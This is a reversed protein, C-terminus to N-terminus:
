KKIQMGLSSTPFSPFLIKVLGEDKDAISKEISTNSVKYFTEKELFDSGVM